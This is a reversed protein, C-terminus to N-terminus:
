VGPSIEADKIADHPIVPNQDCCLQGGACCDEHARREGLARQTHLGIGPEELEGPAAVRRRKFRKHPTIASLQEAVASPEPHAVRLGLVGQLLAQQVRPARQAAAVVHMVDLAPHVPDHVVRREVRQATRAAVVDREIFADVTAGDRGSRALEVPAQGHVGREGLEGRQGVHLALREHAGGDVAVTVLLDGRREPEAVGRHAAEHVARADRHPGCGPRKDGLARDLPQDAGTESGAHAGGLQSCAARAAASHKRREGLATGHEGGAAHEHGAQDSDVATVGTVSPWECRRHPMYRSTGLCATTPSEKGGDVRLVFRSGAM